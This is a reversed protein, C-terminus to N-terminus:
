EGSPALILPWRPHHVVSIPEWVAGLVPWGSDRLWCAVRQGATKTPTAPNSGAAEEDRVFALALTLPGAERSVQSIIGWYGGPGGLAVCAGSARSVCPLAGRRARLSAPRERM